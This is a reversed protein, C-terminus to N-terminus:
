PRLLLREVAAIQAEPIAEYLRVDLAGVKRLLYRL